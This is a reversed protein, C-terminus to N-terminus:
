NAFIEAALLPTDFLEQRSKCQNNSAPRVCFHFTDPNIRETELRERLERARKTLAALDSASARPPASKLAEVAARVEKFVLIWRDPDCRKDNLM